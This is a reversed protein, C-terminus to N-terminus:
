QPFDLHDQSSQAFEMQQSALDEISGQLSFVNATVRFICTFANTKTKRDRVNSPGVEAMFGSIPLGSISEM